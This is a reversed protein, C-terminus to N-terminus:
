DGRAHPKIWFSRSRWNETESSELVGAKKNM